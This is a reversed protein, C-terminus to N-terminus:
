LFVYPKCLKIVTFKATIAQIHCWFFPCCFSFTSLSPKMLILCKQADSVILLSFLCGISHSLVATFWMESFHGIDVSYLSSRFSLLLLCVVWNILPCFVQIAAKPPLHELIELPVGSAQDRRQTHQAEKRMVKGRASSRSGTIRTSM